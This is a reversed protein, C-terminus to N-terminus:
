PTVAETDFTGDRDRPVDTYGVSDAPYQGLVCAGSEDWAPVLGAADAWGVCRGREFGQAEIERDGLFDMYLSFLSTVTLVLILVFVLPREAKVSKVEELATM